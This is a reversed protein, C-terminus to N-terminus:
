MLALRLACFLDAHLLVILFHASPPRWDDPTVAAALYSPLMVYCKKPNFSMQWTQFWDSLLKIDKQLEISDVENNIPRYVICDDAFLRIESSVKNGIDNIYLLFLLPGLVTGQPVGSEVRDWDLHSGNLVM